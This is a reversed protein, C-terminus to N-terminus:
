RKCLRIGNFQWQLDARFFNRYTARSHNAPTAVSAGRLVMNNVMFKGNYEGVVGAPREYGPYPLFASSTHEWRQGWNISPAAAEWEFETPLRMGKWTAFASAEYFSVHTVPEQPNLKELGSLAYRYWTGQAHVWYLPKSIKNEKLWNWGDYHWHEHQEYGGAEIFELYEGNTVLSKRISFDKLYVQHAPQEHDYSFSDGKNGVTYQGAPRQVFAHDAEMVATEQFDVRYLPYLPNNGLIYKIDTYLLEQHQQEHNIGVEILSAAEPPLDSLLRIMNEDVNARYEHIDSVAPRSLNGRKPQTVRNGVGEYYSNFLFSYRPHFREYNRLYKSLILEEFFWSTHALHWKPPSVYDVPQVVYDEIMLPECIFQTYKRVAFYREILSTETKASWENSHKFDELSEM